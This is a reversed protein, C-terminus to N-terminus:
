PCSASSSSLHLMQCHFIFVGITLHDRWSSIRNMATARSNAELSRVPLFLLDRAGAPPDGAQHLGEQLDVGPRASDRMHNGSHAVGRRFPEDM